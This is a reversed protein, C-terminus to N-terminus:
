MYQHPVVCAPLICESIVRFKPRKEFYKKGKNGICILKVNLGLATLEKYRAEIQVFPLWPHNQVQNQATRVRRKCAHMLSSAGEQAHLQQLWRVSRPRWDPLGAPRDQRPPGRVPPLGRGGDESAPQHWVAGALFGSGSILARHIVGCAGRCLDDRGQGAWGWGWSSRYGAWSRSRVKVLNETFPRSNIVAEQARRVKAAAVLKMAETIKMTNKVSAIRDRVEKLGACVQVRGCCKGDAIRGPYRHWGGLPDVAGLQRHWAQGALRQQLGDQHGRGLGM